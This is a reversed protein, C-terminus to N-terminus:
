CRAQLMLDNQSVIPSDALSRASLPTGDYYFAGHIDGNAAV